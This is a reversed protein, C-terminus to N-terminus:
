YNEALVSRIQTLEAFYAKAAKERRIIGNPPFRDRLKVIERQRLLYKEALATDCAEKNAEISWLASYTASLSRTVQDFLDIKLFFGNGLWDASQENSSLQEEM